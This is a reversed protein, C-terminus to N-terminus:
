YSNVTRGDADAVDSSVSIRFEGTTSSYAWGHEGSGNFHPPQLTGPVVLITRHGTYVNPPMRGVLYPGCVGAPDATGDKTTRQTLQVIFEAESTSGQAPLQGDHDTRYRDIQQRFIALDEEVTLMRAEDGANSFQPVVTIAVISLLAVVILIEVVTFGSFRRNDSTPYGM